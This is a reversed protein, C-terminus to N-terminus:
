FARLYFHFHLAHYYIPANFYGTLVGPTVFFEATLLQLKM